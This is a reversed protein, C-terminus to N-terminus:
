RCSSRSWARLPTPPPSPSGTGSRACWSAASRRPSSTTSWAPVVLRPTFGLMVRASDIEDLVQESVSQETDGAEHHLAFIASRIERTTEDLEDIAVSLRRQVEEERVLGAVGHLHMGITFLRDIVADRLADAIRDRDRIIMQRMGVQQLALAAHAAFMELLNVENAAEAAYPSGRRWGAVVVGLVKGSAVLPIYM